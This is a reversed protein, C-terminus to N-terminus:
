PSTAPQIRSQGAVGFWPNLPSQAKLELPLWRYQSTPKGVKGVNKSQKPLVNQAIQRRPQRTLSEKRKVWVELGSEPPLAAKGLLLLV